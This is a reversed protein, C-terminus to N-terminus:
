TSRKGSERAGEAPNKELSRGEKIADLIFFIILFYAEVACSQFDSKEGIIGILGNIPRNHM